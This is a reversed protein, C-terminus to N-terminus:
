NKCNVGGFIAAGTIILQPHKVDGSMPQLTDDGFGGFVGTGRVIVRWNEPVRIEIGGFIANAEIFVQDRKTAAKRLDIEMGGFIVLAEGGEFEQTDLRRKAGSFIHEEKFSNRLDGSAASPASPPSGANM